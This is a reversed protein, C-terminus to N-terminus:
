KLKYEKANTKGTGKQYPKIWIKKGSRLTRFHGIVGWSEIYRNYKKIHKIDKEKGEMVYLIKNDNIVQVKIFDNKNNKNNNSSKFKMGNIKKYIVNRESQVISAYLLCDLLISFYLEENKSNFINNNNHEKNKLNEIRYNGDDDVFLNFANFCFFKFNETDHYYIEINFKLTKGREKINFYIYLDINDLLKKIYDNDAIIGSKLRLVGENLITGPKDKKDKNEKVTDTIEKLDRNTFNLISYGKLEALTKFNEKIYM